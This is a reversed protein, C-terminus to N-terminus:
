IEQKQMKWSSTVKLLRDNMMQREDMMLEPKNRGTITQVDKAGPPLAKNSYTYRHPHPNLVRV